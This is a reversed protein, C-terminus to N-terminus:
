SKAGVPQPPIRLWLVVLGVIAGLVYLAAVFFTRLNEVPVTTAMMAVVHLIAFFFAFPFFQAYDPQAIRDPPLEGCAYPQTLAPARRGGRFSLRGLGLYLLYCAAMFVIFAAPPSLLISAM